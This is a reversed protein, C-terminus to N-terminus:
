DNKILQSDIESFVRRLDKEQYWACKIKKRDCVRYIDPPYFYADADGGRTVFGLEGIDLPTYRNFPNLCEDPPNFSDSFCTYSYQGVSLVSVQQGIYLKPKANAMVITNYICQTALIAIGLLALIGILKWLRKM